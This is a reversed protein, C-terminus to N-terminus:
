GTATRARPYNPRVEAGQKGCRACVFRDEIDSLLLSDPRCDADLEVIHSCKFDRCCVLVSRVGFERMEGFNIKQLM